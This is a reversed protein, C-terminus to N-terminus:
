MWRTGAGADLVGLLIMTLNKMQSEFGLPVRSNGGM